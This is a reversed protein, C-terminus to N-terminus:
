KEKKINEMSDWCVVIFQVEPMLAIVKSLEERTLKKGGFEFLHSTPDQWVAIIESM